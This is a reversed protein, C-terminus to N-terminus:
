IQAARRALTGDPQASQSAGAAGAGAAGLLGSHVVPKAIAGAVRMTIPHKGVDRV